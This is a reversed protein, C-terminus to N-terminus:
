SFEKFVGRFRRKRQQSIKAAPAVGDIAIMVGHTPNSENIVYTLYKIARDMMDEELKYSDKWNPQTALEEFAKPHVLCNADIFLWKPRKDNPRKNDM